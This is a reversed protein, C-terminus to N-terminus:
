KMVVLPVVRVDGGSIARIIYHGALMSTANFAIRLEGAETEREYLVAREAGLEDYLRISVLSRTPVLVRVTANDRCPNPYATVTLGSSRRDHTEVGLAPGSSRPTFWFGQSVAAGSGIAPGIVPQGITGNAVIGNGVALGGGSAIVSSTQRVQASTTHSLVIACVVTAIAQCARNRKLTNM